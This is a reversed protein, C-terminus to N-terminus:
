GPEPRLKRIARAVNLWRKTVDEAAANGARREAVAAARDGFNEIMSFAARVTDSDEHLSQRRPPAARPAAPPDPRPPERHRHLLEMFERRSRSHHALSLGVRRHNAESQGLADEVEHLLAAVGFPKRLLPWGGHQLARAMDDHGTAMIVPIRRAFALEALEIGSMGPLLADSILLDPREAELLSVAAAGDLAVTVRYASDRELATQVLGCVHAEDDVVLVSRM